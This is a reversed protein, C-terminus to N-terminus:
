IAITAAVTLSLIFLVEATRNLLASALQRQLAEREPEALSDFQAIQDVESSDQAIYVNLDVACFAFARNVLLYM